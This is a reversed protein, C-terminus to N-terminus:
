QSTMLDNATKQILILPSKKLRDTRCKREIYPRRTRLNTDISDRRILWKDAFRPNNIVKASFKRVAEVRRDELSRINKAELITNYSERGYCLRLVLKQLREIDQSQGKNIMAHYVVANTEILPRVFVTYMSFLQDGIMGAQRLNILSWFSRRFKERIFQVQAHMGVSLQFGLLKMNDKGVIMDEGATISATSQYGNEISLCVLQTKKANVRMGIDCARQSIHNMAREITDAPIWETPNTGSIHRIVKNAPVSEVLTTDDVYKFTWAKSQQDEDADEVGGPLEGLSVSLDNSTSSMSSASSLSLDHLWDMVGLGRQNLEENDHAGDRGSPRPATAPRDVTEGALRIGIQQTTICYLLCGLISGQPSGGKLLRTASLIDGVKVRMKRGTLFARVLAISQPSAGLARLQRLCERHDLRNFAKEFDIGVVIAPAGADLSTLVRDYLDVLLHDVSSGKMGGYQEPDPQLEKRLDELVISELVKSLFNTCSINRCEALTEPNNVKPIIVTTEVKWCDPWINSDIVANFIRTAPAAFSPHFAKMLRPLVDGVVASNPKKAAKLKEAVQQVTLRPRTTSSVRTGATPLPEFSDSIRTFFAAAENSAEEPTRDPFLDLLSWEQPAASSKLAKVAAFYARSSSGGAALTRNVFQQKTTALLEQIKDRLICWARSKGRRKFIRKKHRALRRIGDTMWPPENSRMRVRRVPFLRDVEGQIFTQFIHVLENPGLHSPLMSDWDTNAMIRGFEDVAAQTHKRTSKSTWVFNRQKPETGTFIVCSHDSPVGAASVLPPWVRSSLGASSSYIVDLCANGRTPDYNIRNIDAYDDLATLDRNNLDGGVFILPDNKAKLQLIEHNILTNLEELQAVRMTPVIYVCIFAVPRGIKGVRGVAMVLEFKNGVIKRERLNCSSKDFIISVGGGVRRAGVANKPRNKYIIKLNTGYELDIIDRDLISGDTLWSETVM